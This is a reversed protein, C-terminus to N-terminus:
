RSRRDFDDGALAIYIGVIVAIALVLLLWM